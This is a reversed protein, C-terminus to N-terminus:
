KEHEGTVILRMGAGRGRVEQRYMQEAYAAPHVFSGETAARARFHFSHTGRPLRLFYYTAQNDLRQVYAPLLSDAQSPRSLSAGTELEANMPELGAAFPVVLAVHTRDEDTTVHAHIELIDGVAVKLAQGQFEEINGVLTGDSKLHTASRSVILGNKLAQVRDGPTDPLYQYEIRAGIEGGSVVAILPQDQQLIKTAVQHAGDLVLEGHGPFELKRDVGSVNARELYSSIALLVRRNDYTSGFGNMATGKSILADRLIENRSDSPDLRILSEFVTALTATPSGLFGGVWSARRGNFGAFVPRGRHLKITASDWLEDKLSALNAKFVGPDASMASTLDALSATDMQNRKHFLEILYHEDLQGAAALARIASTQQNYQLGSLLGPYDSRLVRKLAEVARAELKADPPVGAKKALAIFEVVHATLQVDGTGGPWFAFLGEESQHLAADDFFQRILASMQSAHGSELGLRRLLGVVALEGQLRSMKQELCGYPYGELYELGSLLELVGPVSTFVLKQSATGPRPREPFSKLEVRGPKLTDLHAFREVARDPLVPLTVEFADGVGDSLRHAEARLTLTAAAASNAVKATFQTLATAPAGRLLPSNSPDLKGEGAGSLSLNIQVVGEPGDVLRAIAGGWFRDSQRVFRPLRPQVIVPLRVRITSQRFGFRQMGSAAVARVRFNTLDESVQVPVVLRGSPPVQLTAQYFPVTQFNRRVVQRGARNAAAMPDSEAVGDGGPSEELEAVRGLVTNRTDRVTSTARNRALMQGLPDLSGEKGLSLVAEDVLWLTVEGALPNRKEDKLTLVVEVKAGPRVTEPHEIGVQVQNQSPEVELDIGSALTAPKYRSDETQSEGLRGRMLVVQLPLNPVHSPLIRLEHVAKGGSVEHWAYRNGQPEEVIVLAKGSQYPSQIVIKAVDGPRYSKKDTALEFVGERSKKWAVAEKGGVYLDVSLSQVRGVKDRSVLEVVYVGSEKLAFLPTVPQEETKLVREELRQDEQETLYKAEGTAFQSERLTSHWVRRYLRISVQQGALLKEDSGLAIIRPKLDFPKASYRPLEMGLTFPPLAKTEHLASVQQGDAGTVTAEFTYIRASGDVDLAPNVTMENAGGEDLMARQVIPEPRKGQGPRAFQNSSAFLYNERGAPVHHYPRATVMWVIPQGAVSGGAYYRATAKVKFPGDVAVTPAGNLQIEFSPIRYAEIRFGRDSLVEDGRQLRVTYRGTPADKEKLEASFGALSTWKVPYRRSWGDPGSIELRYRKDEGPHKLEGAARERAYGKIFVTEGPRYVGRETFVFGLLQDNLPPPAAQSLWSLWGSESSWHNAFFRPPPERPDLVLFDEGSQVYIRHSPGWDKQVAVWARGSEDTTVSLQEPLWRFTKRVPDQVRRQAEITIRADRVPAASDLTRVFFVVKEREEIATLSLNTLQVRVYTRQPKGTLRRLGVLYTGPRNKGVASDLLAGLDLGFRTTGSKEELPLNVLRSVLPSGLLRLHQRLEDSELEGSAIDRTRPEEGPFPPPQEEEIVLPKAPFPWLGPHLPDVRYIRVDGRADGYGILPLTRPGNAELIATSQSWRLFPSKWGLHFYVVAEGPDQLPRSSDDHIPAASLVMRYLVDPLFKGRLALRSGRPEFHVDPVSPELRVLKKFATLTPAAVPASFILQPQEGSSGCALARDKAVSGSLSSLRAPGCEVGALHFPARTSLRAQWLVDGQNGLALSLSVLLVRGEPVAEGLTLVYTAPDQRAARPVMAITFNKIPQRPSDAVGPLDRLELQLMEKLSKLPLPQPFTLSLSRFPKLNESGMPPSVASPASMMTTLIRRAGSAELSFRSLPPWPEAPRFQLTRRDVWVYAGPWSPEIKLIRAGEDAGGAGPGVEEAFYATIPDFGRLFTEPLIKVAGRETRVGLDAAQYAESDAGPAAASVSARLLLSIWFCKM